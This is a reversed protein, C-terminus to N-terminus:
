CPEYKNDCLNKVGDVFIQFSVSKNNDVDMHQSILKAGLIQQHKPFHKKVEEKPYVIDDPNRYRSKNKLNKLSKGYAKELADMDGLYRSELEHCAIRILVQKCTGKCLEVLKKKLVKCDNIDQDHVIVFRVDVGPENWGRLKKPISDVLNSKGEHPITMFDVGAPLIKPLITDLVIKMSPEELLFVIKLAQGGYATGTEM